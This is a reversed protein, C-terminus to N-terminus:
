KEVLLKQNDDNFLKGAEKAITPIYSSLMEAGVKKTARWTGTPGAAMTGRTIRGVDDVMKGAGTLMASNSINEGIAFTFAISYALADKGLQGYNNNEISFPDSASVNNYISGQLMSLMQGFNASQAFM